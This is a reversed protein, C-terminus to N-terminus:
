IGEQKSAAAIAQNLEVLHQLAPIAEYKKTNLADVKRKDFTEMIVEKTEKNRIVFSASKERRYECKECLFGIIIGHICRNMIDYGM